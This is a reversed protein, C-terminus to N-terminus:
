QEGLGPTELVCVFAVDHGAFAAVGYAGIAGAGDDAAGPVLDFGAFDVM